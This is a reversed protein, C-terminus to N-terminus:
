NFNDTKVRFYFIFYSLDTDTSTQKKTKQQNKQPHHQTPTNIVQWFIVTSLVKFDLGNATWHGYNSVQKVM